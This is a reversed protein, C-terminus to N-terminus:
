ELGYIVEPHKARIQAVLEQILANRERQATMPGIHQKYLMKPIRHMKTVAATRVVLDYDDAVELTADHGGLEKYVSSRWARLHNPASVIHSLTVDNVPPAKMAWVNHETDWYHDGYGFAWGDPYKGSTGDPLIECWDSYVFGIEADVFTNRVEILADPTLEDDHDLELLINGEAWMFANHKALGINGGSATPPRLYHVVYREDSQYGYIQRAVGDFDTPSDDYVFWTWNQNSQNKLSAWTRALIWDPTKYATTIVAIHM